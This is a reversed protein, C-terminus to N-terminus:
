WTSVRREVVPIEEGLMDTIRVAVRWEAVLPALAAHLETM